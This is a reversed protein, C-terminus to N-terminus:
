ELLKKKLLYFQLYLFFSLMLLAYVVTTHININDLYNWNMKGFHRILSFDNLRDAYPFFNYRLAQGGDQSLMYWFIGALGIGILLWIRGPILTKYKTTKTVLVEKELHQMVSDTFGDSPHDYGKERMLKKVLDESSKEQDAKM